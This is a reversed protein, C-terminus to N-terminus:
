QNGNILDRMGDKVDITPVWNLVKAARTIEAQRQSVLVKRENFIPIAQSGVAEILIDALEAVSTSKGSGVNIAMCGNSANLSKYVANAVDRVHIFDMSQKGAGDIVPSEGNRIREVFHNIVSTYYASTKQGEGYVNFFRLAIWNLNESVEYYKLLDEGTRKSICYPTIPSLNDDEHMPLRKPDGYVSASSAFVIRQIKLKAAAYFVNGNGIFNIKGSELPDAISKNISVTAFHIVHTSGSMEQFVKLSDRVDGEVVELQSPHKKKLENLLDLNARHTMNDFIKVFHGDNLLMPVVHSGIFGAGGTFFIRMQDSSNSHETM